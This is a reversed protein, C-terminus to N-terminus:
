MVIVTTEAVVCLCSTCVDSRKSQAAGTRDCLALSGIRCPLIKTGAAGCYAFTCLNKRLGDSVKGWRAAIHNSHSVFGVAASSHGWPLHPPPYKNVGAGLRRHTQLYTRGNRNKKGKDILCASGEPHSPPNSGLGWGFFSSGAFGKSGARGLLTALHAPLPVGATSQNVTSCRRTELPAFFLPARLSGSPHTSSIV